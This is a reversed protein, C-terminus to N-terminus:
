KDIANQLDRCLEESYAKTVDEVRAKKNQIEFSHIWGVGFVVGLALAIGVVVLLIRNKRTLKEYSNISKDLSTTKM